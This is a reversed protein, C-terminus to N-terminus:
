FQAPLLPFTSGLFTKAAKVKKCRMGQHSHNPRPFSRSCLFDLFFGEVDEKDRVSMEAWQAATHARKM